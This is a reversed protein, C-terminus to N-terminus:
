PLEVAVQFTEHLYYVPLRLARGLEYLVACEAKFGSTCNLQIPLNPQSKWLRAIHDIVRQRLDALAAAAEAAAFEPTFDRAPADFGRVPLKHVTIKRRKLEKELFSTVSKGMATATFVLTVNLVPAQGSLFGTRSQLSNIEASAKVPDTRLFEAIAKSQKVAAELPLGRERAFNTLLSIGVTLIHHQNTM